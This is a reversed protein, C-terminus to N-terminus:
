GESVTEDGVREGPAVTPKDLLAIAAAVGVSHLHPVHTGPGRAVVFFIVRYTLSPNGGPAVTPKDLLAPSQRPHCPQGHQAAVLPIDSIPTKPNLAELKGAGQNWHRTSHGVVVWWARLAMLFYGRGDPRPFSAGLGLVWVFFGWRPSM